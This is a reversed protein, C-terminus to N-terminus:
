PKNENDVVIQKVKYRKKIVKTFEGPLIKKFANHVTGSSCGIALAAQYKNLYSTTQNTLTDLVEVPPKLSTTDSKCGEPYVKYRKKM